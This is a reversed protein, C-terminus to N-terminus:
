VCVCVLPAAAQERSQLASCLMLFFLSFSFFFFGQVPLSVEYTLQDILSM